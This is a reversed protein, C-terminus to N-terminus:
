KRKLKILRIAEANALGIIFWAITGYASSITYFHIMIGLLSLLVAVSWPNQNHYRFITVLPYLLLILFALLGLYGMESAVQVYSNHASRQNFYEESSGSLRAYKIDSLVLLNSNYNNYNGLGVGLIPYTGLIEWGKEIHLQRELLSRDQSLDVDEAEGRLMKGLRENLPDVKYSINQLTSEFLHFNLVFLSSSAITVMVFIPRLFYKRFEYILCLFIIIVTGARGGTLLTSLLIIFIISLHILSNKLYLTSYALLLPVIGIMQFLLGNRANMNAINITAIGLSISMKEVLYFLLVQMSLGVFLFVLIRKWYIRHYYEIIFFALAVWYGFQILLTLSNTTITRLKNWPAFILSLICLIVFVSVLKKPQNNINLIKGPNSIFFFVILIFLYFTISNGFINILPYGVFFAFICFLSQAKPSLMKSNSEIM